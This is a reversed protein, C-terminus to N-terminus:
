RQGMELPVATPAGSSLTGMGSLTISGRAGVVQANGIRAETTIGAAYVTVSKTVTASDTAQVDRPPNNGADIEDRHAHRVRLAGLPTFVAYMLARIPTDKDRFYTDFEALWEEQRLEEQSKPLRRAAFGICWHGIRWSSLRVIEGLLLAIVTCIVVGVIYSATM